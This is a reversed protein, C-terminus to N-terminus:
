VGNSWIVNMRFPLKGIMIFTLQAKEVEFYDNDQRTKLMELLVTIKKDASRFVQYADTANISGFDVRDLEYRKKGIKIIPPTPHADHFNLYFVYAFKDKNPDRNKQWFGLGCGDSGIVSKKSMLRLDIKNHEDAFATSGFIQFIIGVALTFILKM